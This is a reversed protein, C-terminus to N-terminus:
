ADADTRRRPSLSRASRSVPEHAPRPAEGSGPYDLDLLIELIGITEEVANTLEKFLAAQLAPFAIKCRQRGLDVFVRVPDARCNQRVRTVGVSQRRFDVGVIELIEADLHIWM